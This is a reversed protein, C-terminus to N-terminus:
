GIPSTMVIAADHGTLYDQRFQVIPTRRTAWDLMAITDFRHAPATAQTRRAPECRDSLFNFALSAKPRTVVAAWARELVEMAEAQPFTNLSGSFIFIDVREEIVLKTWLEPDAAFDATLIEARRSAGGPHGMTSLRDRAAEALDAVGEVGIYRSQGVNREVLRKLLDALGCGLDAIVKGTPSAMDILADFRVRQM